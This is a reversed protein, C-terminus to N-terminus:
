LVMILILITKIIIEFKQLNHQAKQKQCTGSNGQLSHYTTLWSYTLPKKDEQLVKATTTAFHNSRRYWLRSNRLEFGGPALAKDKDEIWPLIDKILDM